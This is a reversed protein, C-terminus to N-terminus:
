ECIDKSFTKWGIEYARTGYANSEGGCMLYISGWRAFLLFKKYILHIPTFSRCSTSKSLNALMVIKYVGRRIVPCLSQLVFDGFVTTRTLKMERTKCGM